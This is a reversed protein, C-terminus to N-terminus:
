KNEASTGNWRCIEWTTEDEQQAVIKSVTRGFYCLGKYRNNAASSQFITIIMDTHFFFFASFIHSDNKVAIDQNDLKNYNLM